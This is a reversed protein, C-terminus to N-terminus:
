KLNPILNGNFKFYIFQWCNAILRVIDASIAALIADFNAQTHPPSQLNAWPKIKPHAKTYFASL